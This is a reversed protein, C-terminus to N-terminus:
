NKLKFIQWWRKKKKLQKPFLRLPIYVSRMEGLRIETAEHNKASFLLVDHGPPVLLSFRGKADVKVVTETNKIQVTATESVKGAEVKGSVHVAYPRSSAPQGEKLKVNFGYVFIINVTDSSGLPVEFTWEYSVYLNQLSDPAELTYSGDNLDVFVVEGTNPSHRSSVWTGILPENNEDVVRGTITRQGLLSSGIFCCALFFYLKLDCTKKSFIGANL